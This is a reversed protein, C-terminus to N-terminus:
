SPSFPVPGVECARGVKCPRRPAGHVSGEVRAEAGAAVAGADLRRGEPAPPPAGRRRLRQRRGGLHGGTAGCVGLGGVPRQHGPAPAAGTSAPSTCLPRRRHAPLPGALPLLVPLLGPERPLKSGEAAGPGPPLRRVQLLQPESVAQFRALDLGGVTMGIRVGAPPLPRTDRLLQQSAYAPAAPAGGPPLAGGLPLPSLGAGGLALPDPSLGPTYPSGAPLATGGGGTAPLGGTGLPLPTYTPIPTSPPLPTAPPLPTTPPLPTAAPPLPAAAPPAGPKAPPAAALPPPPPRALRQEATAAQGGPNACGLLIPSLEGIPLPDRMWGVLQQMTVFYVNPKASAYAAPARPPRPTPQHAPCRHARPPPAPFGPLCAAGHAAHM